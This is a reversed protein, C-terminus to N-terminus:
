REKNAPYLGLVASAYTDGKEFNENIFHKRQIFSCFGFWGLERSFVGVAFLRVHSFTGGMYLKLLVTVAM